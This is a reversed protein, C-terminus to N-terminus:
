ALYMNNIPFFVSANLQDTCMYYIM